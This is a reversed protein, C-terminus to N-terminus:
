RLGEILYLDALHREVDYVYSKGDPTLLPGSFSDFGTLDSPALEKWLQKRRTALEFRDIRLSEGGVTKALYLAEGREDFRIVQEDPAIEPLPRPQGGDAPYLFVAKDPGRAVILSGDPSVPTARLNDQAPGIEIGDPTLPRPDGGSLDQVFLRTPLRPRNAGFVIRKGDPFWNAWQYEMGPTRLTKPEGAGTPLLVLGEASPFPGPQLAIMWKKDPSLSWPEGNGLYVAQSGDTGRLYVGERSGRYPAWEHFLLTKGDDSLAVSQGYDLWALDVEKSAGPPLCMISRTWDIRTALVRGDRSIDKVMMAAGPVNSVVRRRGGRTVALLAPGSSEEGWSPWSVSSFWVEDTRPNWALGFVPVLPGALTRKKGQLDVLDVWSQNGVPNHEFFAIEGGKPSFRVDALDLGPGAEYLVKGVPYELRYRGGTIRAVALDDRGPAYDASSVGELLEKMPGGALPQEALTGPSPEFGVTLHNTLVIAMKGSRSVSVLNASPLPLPAEDPSDMRSTFIHPDRGVRAATYSVTQGDPNFRANFIEGRRFTLRSYLPPKQRISRAAVWGLGAGALLILAGFLLRRPFLRRSTPPAVRAGSGSSLEAVHDRLSSLDRALDASSAYRHEPEKAHCREVIWRLPAPAQSNVASIPEPEENLIAALTDVGTKRSFARKGTAMEYLISGFSFQDSRFDVQEGSAQEPSMYSATGVVMGPSTKTETQLQSGEGSGTVSQTLKALGFDLIKVLGDKTAMVNEPKLDRHVIGAEHAKALGDAIQTAVQLLKKMPLSGSVLLERLTSGEVREMAIYSISDAQGIEYITVINPHNLASAARAEKEFRKLRGPDAALEAPLVKLAVERSLRTDRARYVEGMGGAGLPAIVEYPGLRAGSPLTM